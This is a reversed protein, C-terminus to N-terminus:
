KDYMSKPAISGFGQRNVEYINVPHTTAYMPCVPCQLSKHVKDVTYKTMQKDPKNIVKLTGASKVSNNLKTSIDKLLAKNVGMDGRIQCLHQELKQLRGNHNDLVSRTLDIHDKVTLVKQEQECPILVVDESLLTNNVPVQPSGSQAQVQVQVQLQKAIKLDEDAAEVKQGLQSQKVKLGAEQEHLVTDIGQISEAVNQLQTHEEESLEGIHDLKKNMETLIEQTEGVAVELKKAIKKTPKDESSQNQSSTCTQQPQQMTTNLRDLADDISIEEESFHELYGGSQGPRIVGYSTLLIYLMVGILM